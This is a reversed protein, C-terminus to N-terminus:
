ASCRLLERANGAGVSELEGAQFVGCGRLQEATKAVSRYFYDSGFLIQSLPVVTRLARMAVPNACQATDYYLRRLHALAGGSPQHPVYPGRQGETLIGPVIEAATGGLFREVLYPVTGGGHSFIFRIRPYRETVGNFIVSAIARTTDTQYEIINDPVGPLLGGCCRPTTPHVFLIGARHDLEAMVPEFSPDGIWHSGLSTYVAFGDAKLVDAAHVLETISAQIDPLPLAAFFGFRRPHDRRLRAAFENITRALEARQVPTGVEGPVFMSLMACVVGARDMDALDDGLNWATPPVSPPSGDANRAHEFFERYGPPIFHHHVDIWGSAPDAARVSAAALLSGLGQLAERRSIRAPAHAAPHAALQGGSPTPM